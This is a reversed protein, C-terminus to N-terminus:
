RQYCQQADVLNRKCQLACGRVFVSQLLTVVSVAFPAPLGQLVVEGTIGSVDVSSISPSMASALRSAVVQCESYEGCSLLSHALLLHLQTPSHLHHLLPQPFSGKNISSCCEGSCDGGGEGRGRGRRCFFITPASDKGRWEGFYIPPTM